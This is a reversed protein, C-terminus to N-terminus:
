KKKVVVKNMECKNLNLVIKEAQKKKKGKELQKTVFFTYTSKTTFYIGCYFKQIEEKM